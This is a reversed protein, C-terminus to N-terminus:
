PAGAAAGRIPKASSGSGGAGPRGGRGNQEMQAYGWRLFRFSIQLWLVIMGGVQLVAAALQQDNVADFGEFVRPALEYVAYIPFDAWTMWFGPLIPVISQLILYALAQPGEIRRVGPHPCQIPTWLVFGAVIWIGDLLFAGYPTKVLPDVLAPANVALLSGAAIGLAVFPRALFRLVSLRRGWGVLRVALDAPTAYLLLPAVVLVMLIQRLMQATALYGAGLAALPWDLCAWLGIVGFVFAVTRSTAGSPYPGSGRELAAAERADLKPEQHRGRVRWWVATGIVVGLIVWAGLYPTPSWTWARSSSSCWWDM